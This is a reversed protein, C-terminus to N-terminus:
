PRREYLVLDVGPRLQFSNVRAYRDVVTRQIESEQKDSAIVIADNAPFLYGYYGVHKYDRLYWPLPWYEPSTIAITIDNGASRAAIGNIADVMRLLGRRTH